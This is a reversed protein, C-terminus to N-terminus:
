SFARMILAAVAFRNLLVTVNLLGPALAAEVVSVAGGMVAADAAGFTAAPGELSLMLFSTGLMTASVAVYSRYIYVTSTLKNDSGKM